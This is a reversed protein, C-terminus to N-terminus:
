GDHYEGDRNPRLSARAMRDGRCGPKWPKDTAAVAAILDPRCSDVHAINCQVTDRRVSGIRTRAQQPRPDVARGLKMGVLGVDNGGVVAPRQAVAIQAPEHAADRSERRPCPIALPSRM